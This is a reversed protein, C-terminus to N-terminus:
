CFIVVEVGVHARFTPLGHVPFFVDLAGVSNLKFDMVIHAARPASYFSCSDQFYEFNPSPVQFVFPRIHREIARPLSAQSLFTSFISYLCTAHLKFDLSNKPWVEIYTLTEM